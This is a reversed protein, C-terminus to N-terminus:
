SAQELPPPEATRAYVRELFEQWEREEREQRRVARYELEGAVLIFSFLAAPLWRPDAFAFLAALIAVVCIVKAITVALWTARLYPLRIALAARLVRGGDMPFAPLLNFCGMTANMVFLLQLPDLEGTTVEQISPVRTFFSLALLIAFNVAPGAIAILMEHAPRRPISSFEAMGGIPLLTIRPVNVGFARAMFSHGLEHLVVCTFFVLLAVVSEILGTWRGGDQWGLWGVYALLLLFSFHASLQIGRIRFLRISGRLM